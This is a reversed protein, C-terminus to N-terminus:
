GSCTNIMCSADFLPPVVVLAVSTVTPIRNATFVSLSYCTMRMALAM